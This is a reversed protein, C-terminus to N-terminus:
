VTFSVRERCSARGIEESPNSTGVGLRNNTGDWHLLGPTVVANTGDGVLIKGDDLETRGTGGRSVSFNGTTVRAADMSGSVMTGDLAFDGSAVHLAASPTTTGLGFRGSADLRAREVGATSFAVTDQGPRYMGTDDDGQWTYAPANASDTGIDVSFGQASVVSGDVELAARPTSAGGFRAGVGLRKQVRDWLIEQPFLPDNQANGVLFRNEPLDSLGTGGKNVPLVGTTGGSISLNTLASGDGQFSTAYIKGDVDLAGRPNSTRVGLRRQQADWHLDSPSLVPNSGAGVLLKGDAHQGSGTGGRPVPLIGSTIVDASMEASLITGDINVNGSVHLASQPFRTNIGVFGWETVRVREEGRTAFALHDDDDDPHFMGTDPDERWSFAPANSSDRPRSGLFQDSAYASGRVDLAKQPTATGIGLRANSGDWSLFEPTNVPGNGDGVLLKNETLNSRGTGGHAVALDGLGAADMNLNSVRSGDDAELEDARVRGSVQLAHQPPAAVGVGLRANTDDWRLLEPTLLPFTGDGVVLRGSAMNSRGTGGYEVALDGLGAADMNLNSVRSGDDTELEDARARGSVHLAHQPVTVGVGLRANAGDWSLLDPSSVANSGRGVLLKGELLNSAGTGGRKVSLLGLAAKNMDLDTIGSGDGRFLDAFVTGRVDLAGRPNSTRVGLRSAVLDWHLDQPSRLADADDGVLVKSRAHANSGTGGKSVPLVGATSTELDVNRLNSGDGWFATAMVTGNVHVRAQPNSEGVGLRANVDDWHLESPALVPNTGHGVLLKNTSLEDRGTGGRVVALEGSAM